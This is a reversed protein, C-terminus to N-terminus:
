VSPEVISELGTLNYRQLPLAEEVIVFAALFVM